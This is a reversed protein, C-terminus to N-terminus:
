LVLDWQTLDTLNISQKQIEKFNDTKDKEHSRDDVLTVHLENGHPPQATKFEEYIRMQLATAIKYLESNPALKAITARPAGEFVLPTIQWTLMTKYATGTLVKADKGAPVKQEM